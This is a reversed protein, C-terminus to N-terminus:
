HSGERHSPLMTSRFKMPPQQLTFWDKSHRPKGYPWKGKFRPRGLTATSRESVKLVERPPGGLAASSRESVRREARPPGGPAATSGSLQLPDGSNACTRYPPTSAPSQKGQDARSESEESCRHSPPQDEQGARTSNPPDRSDQQLHSRQESEDASRSQIWEWIRRRSQEDRFLSNLIEDVNTEDM